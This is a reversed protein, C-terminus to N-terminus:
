CFSFHRDVYDPRKMTFVDIVKERNPRLIRITGASDVIESLNERLLMELGVAIGPFFTRDDYVDHIAICADLRSYVSAVAFDYIFNQLTHLGDIFSFDFVLGAFSDHIDEIRSPISIVSCDYEKITALFNAFSSHSEFEDSKAFYFPDVSIIRVSANAVKAMAITSKGNLTGIELITGKEPVNSAYKQLLLAEDEELWGEIKQWSKLNTNAGRVKKLDLNYFVSDGGADKAYILNIETEM